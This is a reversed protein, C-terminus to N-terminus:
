DSIISAFLFEISAAKAVSVRRSWRRSAATHENVLLLVRGHFRRESGLTVLRANVSAKTFRGSLEFPVTDDDTGHLLVQPTKRKGM